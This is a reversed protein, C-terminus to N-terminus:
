YFDFLNGRPALSFFATMIISPPDAHLIHTAGTAAPHDGKGLPLCRNAGQAVPPDIHDVPPVPHPDYSKPLRRGLAGFRGMGAIGKHLGVAFPLPDANEDERCTQYEAGEQKDVEPAEVAAAADMEAKVMVDQGPRADDHNKRSADQEQCPPGELVIAQAAQVICFLGHHRDKKGVWMFVPQPNALNSDKEPRILFKKENEFSTEPAIDVLLTISRTMRTMMKLYRNVEGSAQM